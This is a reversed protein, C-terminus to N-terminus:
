KKKEYLDGQMEDQTRTCDLGEIFVHPYLFGGTVFFIGIRVVRGLMGGSGTSVVYKERDKEFEM